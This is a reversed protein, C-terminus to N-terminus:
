AVTDSYRKCRFVDTEVPKDTKALIVRDIFSLIIINHLAFHRVMCLLVYCANSFSLKREKSLGKSGFTVFLCWSLYIEKTM